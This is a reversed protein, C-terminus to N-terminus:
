ADPDDAGDDPSAAFLPADPIRYDEDLWRLLDLEQCRQSCFPRHPNGARDADPAACMPCAAPM